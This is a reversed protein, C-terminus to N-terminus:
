ELHYPCFYRLSPLTVYRRQRSLRVFALFLQGFSILSLNYVDVTPAQLVSPKNASTVMVILLPVLRPSYKTRDLLRPRVVALPPLCLINEGPRKPGIFSTLQRAQNFFSINSLKSSTVFLGELKRKFTRHQVGLLGLAVDQQLLLHRLHDRTWVDVSLAPPPFSVLQIQVPSTQHLGDFLRHLDLPSAQDIFGPLNKSSRGTIRTKLPVIAAVLTPAGAHRGM